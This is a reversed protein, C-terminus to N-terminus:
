TPLTGRRATVKAEGEVRGVPKGVTVFQAM